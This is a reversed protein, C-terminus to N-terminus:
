REMSWFKKLKVRDIKIDFQELLTLMLIYELVKIM